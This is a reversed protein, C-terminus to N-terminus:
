ASVRVPVEVEVAAEADSALSGGAGTHNLELLHALIQDRAADAPLGYAALVARDLTAHSIELWSPRSNYLETLTRPRPDAETAVQALWGNRRTDLNKAAEGIAARQEATPKPFPFTEFCSTPTYRFGSEMERLQTGTARAWLEHVKSHLVGFTYDDDSAFVILQHDPLTAADLWVFLRHKTVNPTAIYRKLGALAARMGKRPEVHLWWREAYAARRNEVREPRVMWSAYEFPAEYLAAEEMTMDTGFDVIWMGRRRDTIDKGNVWPKVVDANSRGDPNPSNLMKKATAEDIDFPGGKTDGMFSMGINADLRKATTLNVGTTLDANIALVPLGNLTKTPESGDDQGIVSIHVMAGALTWPTDSVAFFIDGTEKIRELVRRNAGGRIGQTALLGARKTQGSEIQQRSREHWYAALDAERPVQGDYVAFLTDVYDSGLGSRLLKGGLFPPNGVIFEAAPWEAKVVNDPDTFDLLADGTRISDLAHLVPDTRHGFGHELNWQIEGIWISMRTLEAAYPNLELGIVAEPGVAPIGVPVNMVSSAWYLQDVELDKLKRLAVYLFNGSGCAPDLVRVARLRALFAEHLALAKKRGSPGRELLKAAESRATEAERRLPTMVVPEVVQEIASADTFHAGLQTRRDPDLGREFLTGFIAPEVKGWDLQGAALVTKIEDVTLELADDDAFLGGNIWAVKEAGFFGGHTAMHGFLARLQATFDPPNASTAQVLRGILGRPIVNTDEAFLCFVLRDLFRAVRIPDEGRGRLAIALKAFHGAAATTLQEAAQRPKLDEPDTMVARLVVLWKAPDAALDALDFTYTQQITATWNTRVEFRDLDCVVLLPPNELADKYDVLQRYAAALDKRKGKYEWAFFGRRWVDAFGDGGALKGAGKEFAYFEGTPDAENPTQVGLMRCLDIFHEQSASREKQTSQSWKAAFEAPTMTTTAEEDAIARRGAPWFVVAGCFRVRGRALRASM